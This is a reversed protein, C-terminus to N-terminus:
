HVFDFMEVLVLLFYVFFLQDFILDQLFTWAAPYSSVVLLLEFLNGLKMKELKQFGVRLLSVQLRPGLMIISPAGDVEVFVEFAGHEVPSYLPL